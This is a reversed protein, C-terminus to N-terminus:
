NGDLTPIALVEFEQSDKQSTFNGENDPFQFIIKAASSVSIAFDKHMCLQKFDYPKIAQFEEPIIKTEPYMLMNLGRPIRGWIFTAETM